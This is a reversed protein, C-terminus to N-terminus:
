LKDIRAELVGELEKAGRPSFRYFIHRIHSTDFPADDLSQAIIIVDKGTM